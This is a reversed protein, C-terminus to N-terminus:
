RRVPRYSELETELVAEGHAASPLGARIADVEATPVSGTLASVRDASTPATPVGRHRALLGLVAPLTEYPVELQFRDVPECVVTGARRLAEAVVEVTTHRVDAPAPGAPPYGSEIVTVRVDTVAWGQPGAALPEDLYGRVATAFGELTSYVHLPITLRDATVVVQVGQGPATPEVLVGLGYGYPHGPDGIRRAASAPRAPREVCVVGTAAFEVDLGYDAALLEEIVEQQVRGYLSIRLDGRRQGPRVRILPDVDALESLARHLDATRAPDRAVVTTQLGPPPFSSHGTQTTDGIWDGIQAASLGHVRAIQGAVARSRTVAGAPEHVELATITGSRSGGLQVQDRVSLVGSRVRTLCVRGTSALEVAFVQASQPSSPAPPPVLLGAVADLVQAVGAGTRASAPLLPVVAHLRTLRGLAVRLTAESPPRGSEVWGALLEDDHEALRATLDERVSANRLNLGHVAADAGGMGSVAGLPVVTATLRRRVAAAVRDVDAGARDVKNVVILHPVALRRLARSLV